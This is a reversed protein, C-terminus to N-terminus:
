AFRYAILDINADQSIDNNPVRDKSDERCSPMVDVLWSKILGFKAHHAKNLQKLRFIIARLVQSVM